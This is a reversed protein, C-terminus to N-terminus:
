GRSGSVCAQGEGGLRAVVEEGRIKTLTVEGEKWGILTVLEVSGKEFLRGEVGVIDVVHVGWVSGVM